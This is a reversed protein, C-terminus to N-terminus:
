ILNFLYTFKSEASGPQIKRIVIIAKGTYTIERGHEYYLFTGQIAPILMSQNLSYVDISDGIQYSVTGDDTRKFVEIRYTTSGDNAMVVPMLDTSSLNNNGTKDWPCPPDTECGKLNQPVTFYNTRMADADNIAKAQVAADQQNWTMQYQGTAAYDKQQKLGRYIIEDGILLAAYDFPTNLPM